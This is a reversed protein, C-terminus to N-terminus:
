RNGNKILKLTFMLETDVGHLVDQITPQVPYDPMVGRRSYAYGSVALVYKRLPIGVRVKTNPLTLSLSRGSGFTSSKIASKSTVVSTM